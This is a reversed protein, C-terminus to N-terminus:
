IHILSLGKGEKSEVSINGGHAQVITRVITLGIGAGGTKRNRSKDTRYFREFIRGLDEQPIGIGNDEVHIIGSNKTDEIVVHIMGGDNSYKIANSVLNTLVQQIRGKDAFIVAADGSVQGKLHKELLQSEFNGLVNQSLELLDVETKDLVLNEDEVQRLRELNCILGSLRQLEEYCSQMRETTPEMVGDAMMEMYSSINAVPTRLEHTVDSTLRKRLAEQEKLSKAMQSVANTLEYLEKTRIDKTLGEDCGGDRFGATYDGESIKQTVEVVESVPRAIHNALLVGMIIASVLSISGVAILIRNLAAIFHFDHEDMYYPSYYSIDLYGVLEESPKLDYRQTVFNGDLEAREKEMLITISQMVEHCLTMDHNEADWLINEDKDYLKIIFGDELAYMGMGHVYDINWGGDELRYQSSINQAISDAELRQQEEVYEEFERSIMINSVVSILSIAILVLLAFRVALVRRLSYRRM